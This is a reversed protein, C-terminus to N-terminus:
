GSGITIGKSATRVKTSGDTSNPRRKSVCESSSSSSPSSMSSASSSGGCCAASITLRSLNRLYVALGPSARAGLAPGTTSNRSLWAKLVGARIPETGRASRGIRKSRGGATSRMRAGANRSQPPDGCACLGPGRMPEGQRWHLSLGEPGPLIRYPIRRYAM